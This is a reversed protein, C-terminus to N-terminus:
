DKNKKLPMEKYPEKIFAKLSQHYDLCQFHLIIDLILKNILIGLNLIFM